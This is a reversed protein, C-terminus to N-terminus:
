TPGDPPEFVYAGERSIWWGVLGADFCAEFVSASAERWERGLGPHRRRIAHHDAPVRVVAGRDPAVDFMRPAPEEPPGELDLM